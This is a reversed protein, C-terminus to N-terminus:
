PVAPVGATRGGPPQARRRPHVPRMSRRRLTSRLAAFLAPRRSHGARRVLRGEAQMTAVSVVDVEITLRYRKRQEGILHDREADLRDGDPPQGPETEDDDTFASESDEAQERYFQEIRQVERDLLDALDGEHEVKRALISEEACTRAAALARDVHAPSLVTHPLPLLAHSLLSVNPCASRAEGTAYDVCIPLLREEM